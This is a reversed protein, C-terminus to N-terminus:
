WGHTSGRERHCCVYAAPSRASHFTSYIPAYVIFAFTSISDVGCGSVQIDGWIWFHLSKRMQKDRFRRSGVGWHWYSPLRNFHAAWPTMNIWGVLGLSSM